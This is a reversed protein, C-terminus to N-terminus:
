EFFKQITSCIFVKFAVKKLATEWDTPQLQGDADKVMPETLRQHKLGDYAFRSCVYAYVCYIDNCIVSHTSDGLSTSHHVFNIQCKKHVHCLLITTYVVNYTCIEHSSM